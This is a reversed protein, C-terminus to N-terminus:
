VATRRDISRMASPLERFAYSRNRGANKAAYLARDAKEILDERGSADEPYSATGISVTLPVDRGAITIVPNEVARRIREASLLAGNTATGPLIIVFEEGGYRAVLDVNRVNELLRCAIRKLVEDGARHGYTDNLRKFFDLDALLLSVVQDFRKAREIEVELREQFTRHNNLGTLGDITALRTAEQHLRAKELAFAAHFGFSLLLDEDKSSYAEGGIRNALILEGIMEEGMLLPVVLINNVRLPRPEPLGGFGELESRDSSQRSIGGEMVERLMGAVEGYGNSSRGLSTYYGTRQKEELILIASFESKVLEKSKDVVTNIISETDLDKYLISSIDNLIALERVTKMERDLQRRLGTMKKQALIAYWLLVAIIIAIFLYSM